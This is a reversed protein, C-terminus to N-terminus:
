PPPPPSRRPPRSRKPKQPVRRVMQRRYRTKPWKRGRGRRNLPIVTSRIALDERGYRHHEESDFAADALVRDWTVVLSAQTMVPTFQPSDNSPGTTATAGATFHSQADIAAPRRTGRRPPTNKARGGSFTGAG